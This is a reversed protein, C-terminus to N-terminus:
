WDASDFLSAAFGLFPAKFFGVRTWNIRWDRVEEWVEQPICREIPKNSERSDGDGAVILANGTWQAIHSNRANQLTGAVQRILSSSSVFTLYMRFLYDVNGFSM